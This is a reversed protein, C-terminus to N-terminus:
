ENTGGIRFAEPGRLNAHPEYSMKPETGVDAQALGKTLISEVSERTPSGIM